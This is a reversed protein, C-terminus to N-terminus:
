KEECYAFATVEATSNSAVLASVSWTRGDVRRSAFVWQREPTPVGRRGTGGGAPELFPDTSFGGSVVRQRRSCRATVEAILGAAGGEFLEKQKETELEEGRLCNVQAVQTGTVSSVNETSVTWRRAGRKRSEYPVVAPGADANFGPHDFGGSIVKQGKKCKATVTATEFGSAAAPVTRERRRSKVRGKRCYALSTFEGEDPANNFASSRWERPGARISTFPVFQQTPPGGLEIESEFGGSVAKAKGPCRATATANYVYGASDSASAEKLKKGANAVATLGALALLAAAFVVLAGIRTRL